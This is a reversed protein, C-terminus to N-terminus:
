RLHRLADAIARAAHRQEDLLHRAENELAALLPGRLRNRRREPLRQRRPEVPQSRRALDRLDARDQPPAEGIRKQAVDRRARLRGGASEVFGRELDAKATEHVRVKEEDLAGRRLRGVAELVRQNLVRGVVAEQSAATLREVPERRRREDGSLRLRLRDSTM